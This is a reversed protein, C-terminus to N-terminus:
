AQLRLEITLHLGSDFSLLVDQLFHVVALVVQLLLNVVLPCVLRQLETGELVVRVALELLLVFVDLLELLFGHSFEHSKTFAEFM